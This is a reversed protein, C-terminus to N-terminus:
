KEELQLKKTLHGFDPNGIADLGTMKCNVCHDRETSTGDGPYVSVAIDKAAGNEKLVQLWTARESPTMDNLNMSMTKWFAGKTTRDTGGDTRHSRSLDQLGIEFGWDPNISVEFYKGMFIRGIRYYASILNPTGSIAIKGSRVDTDAFYYWFPSDWEYPDNSGKSWVYDEGATYCLATQSTSDAFPSAPSSFGADSYAYLRVNAGHLYHRFLFLSNITRVEPFVFRVEMSTVDATMLYDSRVTNQTNTVEFGTPLTVTCTVEADDFDNYPVVRMRATTM